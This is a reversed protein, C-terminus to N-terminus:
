EAPIFDVATTRRVEWGATIFIAEMEDCQNCQSQTQTPQYHFYSTSMFYMKFNSKTYKSIPNLKSIPNPKLSLMWQDLRICFVPKPKTSPKDKQKKLFLAEPVSFPILPFVLLPHLQPFKSPHPPPHPHM